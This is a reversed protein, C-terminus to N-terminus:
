MYCLQRTISIIQCHISNNYNLIKPPPLVQDNIPSGLAGGDLHLVAIVCNHSQQLLSMLRFIRDIM